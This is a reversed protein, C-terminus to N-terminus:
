ADRKAPQGHEVLYAQWKPFLPDELYGLAVNCRRCLLARTQGAAHDHDVDLRYNGPPSGCIACVGQQDKLMQIYREVTMDFIGHKRWNSPWRNGPDLTEKTKPVM